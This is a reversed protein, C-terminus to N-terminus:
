GGIDLTDLVEISPAEEDGCVRVLKLQSGVRLVITKGVGRASRAAPEAWMLLAGRTIFQTRVGGAGDDIPAECIVDLANRRGVTIRLLKLRNGVAVAVVRKHQDACEDEWFVLADHPVPELALLPFGRETGSREGIFAISSRAAGTEPPTSEM